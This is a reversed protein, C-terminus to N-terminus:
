IVLGSSGGKTQLDNISKIVKKAFEDEDIAITATSDTTLHLDKVVLKLTLEALGSSASSKLEYDTVDKVKFGDLYIQRNVIKLEHAM